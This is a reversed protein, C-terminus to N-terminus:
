FEDPRCGRLIWWYPQIAARRRSSGSAPRAKTRAGSRKDARSAGDINKRQVSNVTKPM